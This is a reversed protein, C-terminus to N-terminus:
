SQNLSILFFYIGKREELLEDGSPPLIYLTDAFLPMLADM